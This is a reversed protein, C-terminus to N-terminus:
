RVIGGALYEKDGGSCRLMLLPLLALVDPSQEVEPSLQQGQSDRNAHSAGGSGGPRLELTVEQCARGSGEEWKIYGGGGWESDM